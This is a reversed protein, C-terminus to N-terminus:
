GFSRVNIQIRLPRHRYMLRFPSECTNMPAFANEDLQFTSMQKEQHSFGSLLPAPLFPTPLPDPVEAQPFYPFYDDLIVHEVKGKWLLRVVYIGAENFKKIPFLDMVRKPNEALVSASGQLGSWYKSM